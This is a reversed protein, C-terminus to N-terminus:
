ADACLPRETERAEGEDGRRIPQVVDSERCGKQVADHKDVEVEYCAFYGCAINNVVWLIDTDPVAHLRGRCFFKEGDHRPTKTFM